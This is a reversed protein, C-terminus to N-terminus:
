RAAVILSCIMFQGYRASRLQSEKHQLDTFIGINPYPPPPSSSSSPTIQEMKEEESEEEEQYCSLASM